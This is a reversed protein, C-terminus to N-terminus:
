LVMVLQTGSFSVHQQQIFHEDRVAPIRGMRRAPNQRGQRLWEM